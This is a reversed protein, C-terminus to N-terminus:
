SGDERVFLLCDRGEEVFSGDRRFGARESCAIAKTNEVDHGVHFTRDDPVVQPAVHAVLARLMSAGLGRGLAWSEGIFYDISVGTPRGIIAAGYGPYARNLYWQLHGFPREGICAIVSQIADAGSLRATYHGVVSEETIVEDPKVYFPRLHPSSTWRFMMPLDDQALPRLAIAM